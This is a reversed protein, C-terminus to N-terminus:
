ETGSRISVYCAVAAPGSIRVVASPVGAVIVSYGFTGGQSATSTPFKELATVPQAGSTASSPTATDVAVYAQGNCWVTIKSVFPIVFPVATSGTANTTDAGAVSTIVGLHREGAQAPAAVLLVASLAVLRILNRMTEVQVM